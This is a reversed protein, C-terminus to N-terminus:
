KVLKYKKNRYILKVKKIDLEIWRKEQQTKYDERKVYCHGWFKIQGNKKKEFYIEALRNNVMAFCWM